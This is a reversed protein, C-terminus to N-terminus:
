GLVKMKWCLFHLKHESLYLKKRKLIDLVWKVHKVHEDLSNSYIVINDLYMDMFDGLHAALLYNMLAQYTAPVNCDGQQVIHSVINGDLITIATRPVHKPCVRIQKYTDQGDFISRFKARAAWRLIGDMNPLLLLKKHINANHAQLDSVIRLCPSEGNKSPKKLFMMPVANGMTTVEWQGTKVYAAQKANWQPKLTEPCRSPQWPYIKEPDILPIEHNIMRLPPLSTKGAAM